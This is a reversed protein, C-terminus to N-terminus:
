SATKYYRYIWVLISAYACHGWGDQINIDAGRELLLKLVKSHGEWAATILAAWGETDKFNVDAGADIASRVSATDGSRAASILQENLEGQTM